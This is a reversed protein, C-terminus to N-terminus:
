CKNETESTYPCPNCTPFVVDPDFERVKNELWTRYAANDTVIWDMVAILKTNLQSLKERVEKLESRTDTLEERMSNQVLQMSEIDARHIDTSIKRRNLFHEVIAVACGSVASTSLIAVILEGTTIDM